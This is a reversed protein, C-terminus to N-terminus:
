KFNNLLLKRHMKRLRRKPWHLKEIVRKKLLKKNSLLNLQKRIKRKKSPEKLWSLMGNDKSNRRKLLRKVLLKPM